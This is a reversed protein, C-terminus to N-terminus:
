SFTSRPGHDSCSELIGVTVNAVDQNGAQIKSRGFLKWRTPVRGDSHVHNLSVDFLNTTCDVQLLRRPTPVMM